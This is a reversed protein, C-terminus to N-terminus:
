ALSLAVASNSALRSGSHPRRRQRRKRRAVELDLDLDREDLAIPVYRGFMDVEILAQTDILMRQFIGIHGALVSSGNGVRVRDGAKFRTVPPAIQLPLIDNTSAAVLGTVIRDEVLNVRDGLQVFGLVGVISRVRDWLLGYCRVFVYGPFLPHPREIIRGRWVHQRLEQFLHHSVEYAGLMRSVARERHPVTILLSWTM